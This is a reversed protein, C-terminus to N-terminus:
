KVHYSTSTSQSDEGSRQMRVAGCHPCLSPECAISGDVPCVWASEMRSVRPPCPHHCPESTCSSLGAVAIGALIASGLLRRFM